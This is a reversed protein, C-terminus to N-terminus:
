WHGQFALVLTGRAYIKDTRHALCYALISVGLLSFLSSFRAPFPFPGPRIRPVISYPVHLPFSGALIFSFAGILHIANSITRWAVENEAPFVIGTTQSSPSAAQVNSIATFIAWFYLFYAPSRISKFM